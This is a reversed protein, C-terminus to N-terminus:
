ARDDHGHGSPQRSQGGLRYDVILSIFIEKYRSFISQMKLHNFNFRAIIIQSVYFNKERFFQIVFRLNNYLPSVRQQRFQLITFFLLAVRM